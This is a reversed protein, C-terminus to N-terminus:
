NNVSNILFDLNPTIKIYRGQIISFFQQYEINLSEKLSERGMNEALEELKNFSKCFIEAQKQFERNEPTTFDVTYQEEISLIYEPKVKPKEGSLDFVDLTLYVDSLKRVLKERANGLRKKDVKIMDNIVSNRFKKAQINLRDAEARAKVLLEKQLFDIGEKYFNQLVIATPKLDDELIAEKVEIILPIVSEAQRVKERILKENRYNESQENM